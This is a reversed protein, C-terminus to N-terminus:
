KRMNILYKTFSEGDVKTYKFNTDGRFKIDDINFPNSFVTYKFNADNLFIAREFSVGKPFKTYKFNAEEEFKASTFNVYRPFQTYKFTVDEVFQTSSFDASSSFKSYKFNADDKFSTSDFNANKHFRVYKFRFEGNIECGSFLVDKYFIPTYLKKPLNVSRYAIVNGRFICNVFKVRSRIHCHYSDQHKFDNNLTIDKVSTFDLDGTIVANEYEVDEGANIQRIIDDTDVKNLAFTACPLLLIILILNLLRKM